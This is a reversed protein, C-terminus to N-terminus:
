ASPLAVPLIFIGSLVKQKGWRKWYNMPPISLCNRATTKLKNPFVVISPKHTQQYTWISDDICYSTINCYDQCEFYAVSFFNVPM